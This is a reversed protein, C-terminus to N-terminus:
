SNKLAVINEILKQSHEYRWSHLNSNSLTEKIKPLKQKTYKSAIIESTHLVILSQTMQDQLKRWLLTSLNLNLKKFSYLVLEITELTM